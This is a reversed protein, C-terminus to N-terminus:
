KKLMAELQKENLPELAGPLVDKWEYREFAKV